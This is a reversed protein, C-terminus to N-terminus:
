LSYVFGKTQVTTLEISSVCGIKWQDILSSLGLESTTFFVEM